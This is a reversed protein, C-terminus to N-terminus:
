KKSNKKLFLKIIQESSSLDKHEKKISHVEKYVETPSFGLKILAQCSESIINTGGLNNIDNKNVEYTSLLRQDGDIKKSMITEDILNINVSESKHFALKENLRTSYKGMENIIRSAIKKGIGSISTFFLEDMSVIAHNIDDIKFTSLISMATRPGLGDVKIFEEFCCKEEFTLFGYLSTGDEKTISKIYLSIYNNIEYDSVINSNCYVEYCIGNNGSGVFIWITEKSITDVRGYIRTIM